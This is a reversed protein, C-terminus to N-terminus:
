NQRHMLDLVNQHMKQIGKLMIAVEEESLDQTVNAILYQSIPFVEEMMFVGRESLGVRKVRKDYEDTERYIIGKRELSALLRAITTKDKGTAYVLESQQIVAKGDIRAIRALVPVEELTVKFDTHRQQLQQLIFKRLLFGTDAILFGLQHHSSNEEIEQLAM